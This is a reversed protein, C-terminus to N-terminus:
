MGRFLVGCGAAGFRGCWEVRDRRVLGPARKL